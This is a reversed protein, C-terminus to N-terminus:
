RGTRKKDHYEVLGDIPQRLIKGVRIGRKKAAARLQAGFFYAISGVFHVTLKRYGPYHCVCFDMFEGMGQEVIKKVWPHRRNDSFFRAFSALWVNPHAGGYVNRIMIEKDMRYKSEFRRRLALPLIGYLYYRLLTKGYYSGSGEDGMIFGLGFNNHHAKKGDFYCSNSGTGLICAIGPQDGCTALASATIDHDVRIVARKFVAELASKVIRNRAPSSCGAGYFYVRDVKNAQAALRKNKRLAGAISATTHFQPNFGITHYGQRRGDKSLLVWDTKTSGSDAVLIM